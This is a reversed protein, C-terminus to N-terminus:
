GLSLPHLLILRAFVAHTLAAEVIEFCKWRLTARYILDSYVLSVQEVRM